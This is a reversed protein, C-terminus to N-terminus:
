KFISDQFILNLKKEKFPLYGLSKKWVDQSEMCLYILLDKDYFRLWNIIKKYLDLRIPKLYRFKKDSCLIFEDNLINTMPYNYEIMKKLGPLYRFTGLSIWAIDDSTIYKFISKILNYYEDDFNSINIIPDVHLSIKYGKKILEKAAELREILSSSYGEETKIIAEPNVSFGIVINGPSDIEILNDIFNTKTKFEFVNQSYNAFFDIFDKSFATFPDYVLSDGLEGTGIRYFKNDKKFIDKLTEFILELDINIITFPQNLYEQLICYTCNLPCGIYLNIVYYNCCIHGHSGPCKKLIDGRIGGLYLIESKEAPTYITPLSKILKFLDDVYEIPSTTNIKSLIRSVNCHDKYKKEIYIKKFNHFSKTKNM